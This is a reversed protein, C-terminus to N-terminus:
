ETTDVGWKKESGMKLLATKGADISKHRFGKTASFVLIKQSQTIKKASSCGFFIVILFLSIIKFLNSM